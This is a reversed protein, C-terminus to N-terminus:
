CTIFYGYQTTVDIFIPYVVHLVIFDLPHDLLELILICTHLGDLSPRGVETDARYRNSLPDIALHEWALQPGDIPRPQAFFFDLTNEVRVGGRGMSLIYVYVGIESIVGKPGSQLVGFDGRLRDKKYLFLIYLTIHNKYIIIHIMSVLKLIM